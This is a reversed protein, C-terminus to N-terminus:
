IAAYLYHSLIVPLFHLHFNQLYQKSALKHTAAASAAFEPLRASGALAGATALFLAWAVRRADPAPARDTAILDLNSALSAVIERGCEPCAGRASLGELDYGCQICRLPRRIVPESM